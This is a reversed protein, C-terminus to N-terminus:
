RWLKWKSGSERGSMDCRIGWLQKLLLRDQTVKLGKMPHVNAYFYLIINIKYKDLNKNPTKDQGM